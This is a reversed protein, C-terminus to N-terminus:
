ASAMRDLEGSANLGALESYGGIMKDGIFIQPVTLYKTRERLARLEEEKGDLNIEEFELGKTKLLQKARDCYPCHSKSYVQIKAM